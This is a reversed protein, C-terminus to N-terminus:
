TQLPVPRIEQEYRLAALPDVRMAQRAAIVCALLAIALLLGAVGAYTVPDAATVGFLMSALANRLLWAGGTGLVVGVLALLLGSSLIRWLM